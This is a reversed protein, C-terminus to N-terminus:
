LPFSRQQSVPLPAPLLMDGQGLDGLHNSLGGRMGGRSGKDALPKEIANAPPMVHDPWEACQSHGPGSGGEDESGMQEVIPLVVNAPWSSERKVPQRLLRM